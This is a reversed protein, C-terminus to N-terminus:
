FILEPIKYIKPPNKKYREYAERAHDESSTHLMLTDGWYVRWEWNWHRGIEYCLRVERMEEM